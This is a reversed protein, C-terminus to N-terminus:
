GASRESLWNPEDKFYTGKFRDMDALLMRASRMLTETRLYLAEFSDKMTNETM